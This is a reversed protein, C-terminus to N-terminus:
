TVDWQTNSTVSVEVYKGSIEAVVPRGNMSTSVPTGTSDFVIEIIDIELTPIVGQADVSIRITIQNTSNGTQSIVLNYTNGAIANSTLRISLGSGSKAVSLWSPIGSPLDFGINSGNKTSVVNITKVSTDGETINLTSPDVSFEYTDSVPTLEIDITKDESVTLTRRYTEFNEATAIIEVTNGNAIQITGGPQVVNGDITVVANSPSVTGLTITRYVPNEPIIDADTFVVQVTENKSLSNIIVQKNYYGPLSVIITVKTGEPIGTVVRQAAGNITVSADAPSTVVTVSYTKPVSGGGGGSGGSGSDDGCTCNVDIETPIYLALRDAVKRAVLDVLPGSLDIKYNTAVGGIYMTGDAGFTIDDINLHISLWMWYETDQSRVPSIGIPVEKRSIYAECEGDDYLISVLCLRDYKKTSDYRGEATLCVKGLNRSYEKDM